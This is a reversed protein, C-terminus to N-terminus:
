RFDALFTNIKNKIDAKISVHLTLVSLPIEKFQEIKVLDKTTVLLSTAAYKELISELEEKTFSHHDPFVEKALLADPLYSDLRSPKSIATVLVMRKTQNEIKVERTFDEDEKVVVDCYRYMFSPERYAGSPLCFPLKPEPNPRLLIDLKKIHAKSFGDDLFVLKAGIEKALQIGDLRDESVIVSANSLNKAYLMAEDGSIRVDQLIKGLKSILITGKSERKYGRLVIAVEKYDSALSILFPTKGSGGVTLNGISIVPIKTDVKKAIVRKLLVILTYLFSLPLLLFSLFYQFFSSPYFLYEEVWFILKKYM